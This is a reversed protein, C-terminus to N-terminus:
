LNGNSIEGGNMIFTGGYINVCGGSVTAYNNRLVAGSNLTLSSGSNVRVLPAMNTTVINRNGDIIINELVVKGGSNIIYLGHEVNIQAVRRMLTRIPGDSKITLTYSGTNSQINLVATIAIDAGVTITMDTTSTSYNEIAAQLGVFDTIPTQAQLMLPTLFIFFLISLRKM